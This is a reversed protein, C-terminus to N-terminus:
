EDRGMETYGGDSQGDTTPKWRPGDMEVRGDRGTWRPGDTEARGDRVIRGIWGDIEIWGGGMRRQRRDMETRGDGDPNPSIRPSPVNPNEPFICDYGGFFSINMWSVKRDIIIEYIDKRRRLSM